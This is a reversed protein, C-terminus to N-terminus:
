ASAASTNKVSMIHAAHHKGHWSYLALNQELTMLGREPHRFTRHFDEPQMSELLLVWRQHLADLLSMSLQIPATRADALEAWLDEHYPKITPETETLALRFRVYSNMHSDAVHHIVQRVTWGGPRYPTELQEDSMGQVAARIQSPTEAIDQIWQKRLEPTISEPREFRGIPYQLTTM